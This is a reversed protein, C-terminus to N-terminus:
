QLWSRVGSTPVVAEFSRFGREELAAMFQAEQGSQPVTVVSGGGGAGTLKAGYCGLSLALDVLEDLARDSAGVTSLVAHNYTLLKGLSRMDGAVIRERALQSVMSASEGLASFLYPFKTKMESVKNIQRKTSRKQGSQVVVFKRTGPFRVPKPRVGMKFLLVGGYTCVAVDIGSPRGHIEKEGTMAYEVVERPALQVGNLRSISAAVAVMTSASSGLGSGPPVTSTVRLHVRPSFDEAECIKRAVKFIPRIEPRSKREYHRGPYADSEVTLEDSKSAEVRIRRDIATALAWAGHVVFHEGTIIAKTPAEAISNM